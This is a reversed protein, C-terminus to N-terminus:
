KVIYIISPNKSEIKSYEEQTGIWIQFYTNSNTDYIFSTKDAVYELSKWDDTGNGIKFKKTDTEFGLEGDSLVPNRNKWNNSTDRRQLYKGLINTM